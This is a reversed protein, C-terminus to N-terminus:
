FKGNFKATYSSPSLILSNRSIRLAQLLVGSMKNLKQASSVQINHATQIRSALFILGEYSVTLRSIFTLHQVRWWVNSDCFLVVAWEFDFVIQEPLKEPHM